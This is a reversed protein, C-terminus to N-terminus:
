TRPGLGPARVMNVVRTVLLCSAGYCRNNLMKEGWRFAVAIKRLGTCLRGM